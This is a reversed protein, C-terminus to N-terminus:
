FKLKSEYLTLIKDVELARTKLTAMEDESLISAKKGVNKILFHQIFLKLSERFMHLKPSKAIRHFVELASEFDANVIIALIIQRMFKVTHKNLESFQIIQFHKFFSKNVFTLLM